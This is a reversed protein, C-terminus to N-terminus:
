TGGALTLIALLMPQGLRATDADFFRVAPRPSAVLAHAELQAEWHAGLRMAIGVGADAALFWRANHEGQYAMGATGDVGFRLAGLGLSVMPRLLRRPRFWAACELLGVEQRVTASATAMGINGQVRPQTGLGLGTLRLWFREDIALRLRATPALTPGIGGWGGFASAGLEIGLRWSAPSAGARQELADPKAVTPAPRSEEVLVEVLTARLLEQARIALVESIPHDSSTEVDVRRTVAKDTIRDVVWLEVSGQALNGFIALTASPAKARAAREMLLRPEPLLDSAPIDALRVEFGGAQLESRIRVIAEASLADTPVPRLLVVLVRRDAQARGPSASTVVVAALAVALFLRLTRERHEPTPARQGPM